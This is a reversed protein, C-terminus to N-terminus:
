WVRVEMDHLEENLKKIANKIRVVPTADAINSGREDMVGKIDELQDSIRHLESNRESIVETRKNYTDQLCACIHM